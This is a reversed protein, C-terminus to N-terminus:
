LRVQHERYVDRGVDFPDTSCKSHHCIGWDSPGLRWFDGPVDGALRQSAATARSGTKFARRLSSAWSKVQGVWPGHVGCRSDDSDPHSGM